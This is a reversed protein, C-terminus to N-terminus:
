KENKLHTQLNIQMFFRPFAVESCHFKLLDFTQRPSKSYSRQVTSTLWLPWDRGYLTGLILNKFRYKSVLIKPRIKLLILMEQTVASVWIIQRVNEKREIDPFHSIFPFTFHSISSKQAEWICQSSLTDLRIFGAITYMTFLKDIIYWSLILPLTVRVFHILTTRVAKSIVKGEDDAIDERVWGAVMKWSYIM